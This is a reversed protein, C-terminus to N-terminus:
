RVFARTDRDAQFVFNKIPLVVHRTWWSDMTTKRKTSRDSHTHDFLSIGKTIISCASHRSYHCCRLAHHPPTFYMANYAWGVVMQITVLSMSAWGVPFIDGYGARSTLLAPTVALTLCFTINGTTTMTAVSFYFFVM